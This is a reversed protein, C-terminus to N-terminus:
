NTKRSPYYLPWFVGLAFIFTSQLIILKASDALVASFEFTEFLVRLTDFDLYILYGFAAAMILRFLPSKQSLLIMLFGIVVLGENLITDPIGDILDQRQVADALIPVLPEVLVYAVGGLVLLIGIKTLGKFVDLLCGVVILASGVLRILILLLEKDVMAIAGQYDNILLVLIDYFRYIDIAVVIGASLLVFIKFIKSM